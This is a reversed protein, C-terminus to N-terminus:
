LCDAGSSLKRAVTETGWTGHVGTCDRAPRRSRLLAIGEEALVVAEQYGEPESYYQAALFTLTLGMGLDDGLAEYLALAERLVRKGGIPEDMYFAVVGAAYLVAAQVDAPMEHLSPSELTRATWLEGEAFHTGRHWFQGLTGVMTMGLLLEAGGLSWELAARINGYDMQLRNLTRLHDGGGRTAPEGVKVLHAFYEAHRRRLMETEGREELMEWAYEHITELM